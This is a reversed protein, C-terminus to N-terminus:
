AEEGKVLKEFNDSTVRAHLKGDIEVNPSLACNGFCYVTELSVAGDVRTEDIKVGLIEEVRRTLDRSGM